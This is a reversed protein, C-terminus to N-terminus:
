LTCSRLLARAFLGRPHYAVNIAWCRDRAGSAACRAAVERRLASCLRPGHMLPHDALQTGARRLLTFFTAARGPCSLHPGHVCVGDNRACRLLGSDRLPPLRSQKTAFAGRLSSPPTKESDRTGSRRRRWRAACGDSSSAAPM